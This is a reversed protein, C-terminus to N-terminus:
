QTGPRAIQVEDGEVRVEYVPEAETAPGTVAEGTKLDFASGHCACEVTGNEIWGDALSCQAHTCVDGIARYEGGVNALLVEAEGVTVQLLGDEPVDETKAVTEFGSVRM